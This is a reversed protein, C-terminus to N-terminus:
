SSRSLIILSLFILAMGSIKIPSLTEGFAAVGAVAATLPEVFAIIMARSPEMKELGKTYCIFPILTLFLGLTLLNIACVYSEGMLTIMKGFDCFPALLIAVAGFAYATVTFPNYKHLAIKGFITYQSFCFAAALGSLIGIISLEESDIFGITMVCGTFAILLACVKQLTIRDKFLLASIVMVMFPATYLLISATSLTTMQITRFYFMNFLAVGIGGM